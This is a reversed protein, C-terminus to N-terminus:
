DWKQNQFLYHQTEAQQLQFSANYYFTWTASDLSKIDSNLSSLTITTQKLTKNGTSSCDVTYTGSSAPSTGLSGDTQPYLYTSKEIFNVEQESRQVQNVVIPILIVGIILVITLTIFQSSKAM